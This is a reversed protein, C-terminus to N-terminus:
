KKAFPLSPFVNFKYNSSSVTKFCNTNTVVITGDNRSFQSKRNM